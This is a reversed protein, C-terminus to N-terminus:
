SALGESHPDFEKVGRVTEAALAGTEREREGERLDTQGLAQPATVAWGTHTVQM